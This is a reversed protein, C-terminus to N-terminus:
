VQLAMWVLEEAVDDKVREWSQVLGEERAIREVQAEMELPTDLLKLKTVVNSYATAYKM